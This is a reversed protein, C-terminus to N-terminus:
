GGALCQMNECAISPSDVARGERRVTSVHRCADAVVGCLDPTHLRSRALHLENTVSRSNVLRGERGIPLIYEGGTAVLRGADPVRNGALRHESQDPVGVLHM